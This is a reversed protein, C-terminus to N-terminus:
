NFLAEGGDNHTHKHAKSQEGATRQLDPCDRPRASLVRCFLLARATFQRIDGATV